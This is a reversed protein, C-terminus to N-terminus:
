TSMQLQQTYTKYGPEMPNSLLFVSGSASAKFETTQSPDLSFFDGGELAEGAVKVKGNVVLGSLAYDKPSEVTFGGRKFDILQIEARTGLILPSEDGTFDIRRIGQYDEWEFEDAEYHHYSPSRQLSKRFDPDLWIQIARAGPQFEETHSIGNGARIIQMDGKTLAVSDERLSDRHSIKGDLVYTLMEFGRRSTVDLVGGDDSWLLAWYYLSSFGKVHSEVSVAKRERIRGNDIVGRTLEASRTVKISM